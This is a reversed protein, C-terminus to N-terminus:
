GGPVKAGKGEKAERLANEHATSKPFPYKQTAQGRNHTSTEQLMSHLNNKTSKEFIELGNEKGFCENIMEYSGKGFYNNVKQELELYNKSFFVKNIFEEGFAKDLLGINEAGIDHGTDRDVELGYKEALQLTRRQTLWEDISRDNQRMKFDPNSFYSNEYSIAHFVEHLTGDLAKNDLVNYAIYTDGKGNSCCYARRLLKDYRPINFKLKINKCYNEDIEPNIHERFENLIMSSSQDRLQYARQKVRSPTLAEILSGAMSRYGM